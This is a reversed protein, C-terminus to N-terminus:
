MFEARLCTTCPVRQPWTICSYSRWFRGLCTVKSTGQNCQEIAAAEGPESFLWEAHYRKVVRQM